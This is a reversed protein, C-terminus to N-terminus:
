QFFSQHQSTNPAPPSQSSLPRLPQIVDSVQHVHTQTYELLQHHIPLGPTSHYIPDCLTPCSQAVSSFQVSSFEGVRQSGLSQLGVLSRQGHPNESCSYQLPNGHGGGPSRGSAPISDSDRTDGAKAPPNKVVLAVQSAWFCPYAASEDDDDTLFLSSVCCLSRSTYGVKM